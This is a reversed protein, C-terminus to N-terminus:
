YIWRKSFEEDGIIRFKTGIQIGFYGEVLNQLYNLDEKKADIIPSLNEHPSRDRKLIHSSRFSFSITKERKDQNPRLRDNLVLSMQYVEAAFNTTEVNGTYIRLGDLGHEFSKKYVQYLKNATIRTEPMKGGAPWILVSRNNVQEFDYPIQFSDLFKMAAKATNEKIFCHKGFKAYCLPHNKLIAMYASGSTTRGISDYIGDHLSVEFENTGKNFVESFTLRLPAATPTFDPLISKQKDPIAFRSISENFLTKDLLDNSLNNKRVTFGLVSEININELWIFAFDFINQSYTDIAEAKAILKQDKDFTHGKEELIQLSETLITHLDKNSVEYTEQKM